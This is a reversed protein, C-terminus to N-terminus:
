TSQARPEDPNNPAPQRVSAAEMHRRLRGACSWLADARAAIRLKLNVDRVRASTQQLNKAEDCWADALAEASSVPVWGGDVGLAGSHPQQDPTGEVSACREAATADQLAAELALRGSRTTPNM